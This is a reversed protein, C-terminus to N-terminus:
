RPTSIVSCTARDEVSSISLRSCTRRSQPSARMISSKPMPCLEMNYKCFWGNWITLSSPLSTRERISFSREDDM